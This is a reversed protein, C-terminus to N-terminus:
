QSIIQDIEDILEHLTKQDANDVVNNIEEESLEQFAPIAIENDKAYNIKSILLLKSTELLKERTVKNLDLQERLLDDEIFDREYFVTEAKVELIEEQQQEVGEDLIPQDEGVEEESDITELEVNDVDGRKSHREIVSIGGIVLVVALPDFVAVLILIVWRVAKEILATGAQEGYILEALYKVPGVEAELKRNESEIKFKEQLLDDITKENQIIKVREQDVLEAVDEDSATGLQGRLRNILDNAQSVQEEVTGRLRNLEQTYTSREQSIKELASDRVETQQTRFEEVKAATKPGYRGDQRVGILGQLSRIDGSDVYESTLSINKDANELQERYPAIAEDFNQKLAESDTEFRSYLTQIREQENTIKEQISNDKETDANEYKIIKAESRVIADELRAIEGDVRSLVAQSEIAVATQEIHAKSLFGFIGMSTIFMLLVLAISLYTKILFGSEKWFLHLWVATTLKGVELASGMIIVPIASAAFIAVLGVISYYAATVSIILAVFLTWIGFFKM